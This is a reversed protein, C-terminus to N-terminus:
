EVLEFRDEMRKLLPLQAQEYRVQRMTVGPSHAALFEAADKELMKERVICGETGPRLIEALDPLLQEEGERLLLFDATDLFVTGPTTRKLDELAESVTRGRGKDDTDTEMVILGHERYVQILEVPQLEGVDTGRNPLFWSLLFFAAAYLIWRKM